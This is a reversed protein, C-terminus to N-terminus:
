WIKTDLSTRVKRRREHGKIRIKSIGCVGKTSVLSIIIIKADRILKPKGFKDEKKKGPPQGIGKSQRLFTFEHGSVKKSRVEIDAVTM